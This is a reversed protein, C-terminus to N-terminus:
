LLHVLACLDICSNMYFVNGAMSLHQNTPVNINKDLTDQMKRLAKLSPVNPVGLEVMIWMIFKMHDDSLRLRPMNDLLDLLFM